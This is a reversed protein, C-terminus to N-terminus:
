LGLVPRCPWLRLRCVTQVAGAIGCHTVCDRGAQWGMRALVCRQRTERAGGRVLESVFSANRALDKFNIQFSFSVDDTQSEKTVVLNLWVPFLLVVEFVSGIM